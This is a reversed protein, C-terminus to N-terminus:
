RSRASDRNAPKSDRPSDCDNDVGSSCTRTEIGDGDDDPDIASSNNSRSSNYGTAGTSTKRYSVNSRSSNHDEIAAIGTTAKRYSVNSRSSNHDEIAVTGTSAKRYSVNSRSSNHDEAAAIGTAETEDTRLDSEDPATVAMDIRNVRVEPEAFALGTLLLVVAITLNKM